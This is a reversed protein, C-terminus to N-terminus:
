RATSITEALAKGIGAIATNRESISAKTQTIYIVAILPSRHPPWLVAVVGRTGNGGAGTRDGVRWDNPIGARLLPGGVENDILWQTLQARSGASLASGLVLKQLTVAMAAPTTTDRQDGLAGENLETERRDM